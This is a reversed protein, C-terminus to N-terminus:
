RQKLIHRGRKTIVAFRRLSGDRYILCVFPRRLSRHAAEIKPLAAIFVHAMEAGTLGQSTLVFVGARSAAIASLELPRRRINEDKSLIAWGKRGVEALWHEDPTDPPFHDDHVEVDAGVSRLGSAV